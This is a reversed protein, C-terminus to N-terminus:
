SETVSTQAAVLLQWRVNGQEPKHHQHHNQPPLAVNANHSIERRCGPCIYIGSHPAHEGPKYIPDFIGQPKLQVETTDQYYAM